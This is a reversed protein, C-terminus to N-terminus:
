SGSSNSSGAAMETTEGNVTISGAPGYTVSTGGGWGGMSESRTVTLTVGDLVPTDFESSVATFVLQTNEAYTNKGDFNGAASGDAAAFTGNERVIVVNNVSATLEYISSGSADTGTTLSVSFAGATATGSMDYQSAFQVAEASSAFYAEASSDTVGDGNGVATVTVSYDGSADLSATGTVTQYNFTFAKNPGNVTNTYSFDELEITDVVSGSADTVEFVVKTPTGTATLCDLYYDSPATIEVNGANNIAATFGTPEDLQGDITFLYYATEPNPLDDTSAPQVSLVYTGKPISNADKVAGVESASSSYERFVVNGSITGDGDNDALGSVSGTQESWVYMQEGDVTIQTAGNIDVLAAGTVDNLVKSVGVVYTDGGEVTSFSFAGTQPDYTLNTPANSGSDGSCGALVSAALLSAASIATVKKLLGKM